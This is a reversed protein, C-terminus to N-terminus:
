REILKIIEEPSKGSKLLNIINQEAELRGKEIGKEIGKEMGEALGQTRGEAMAEEKAKALRRQEQHKEMRKDLIYKERSLKRFYERDSDTIQVLAESAMAIGEKERIIENIKGRKGLDTLYKLYAAWSEYGSMECVPKEIIRKAKDLELIVIRTKGNLSVGHVPDYYEFTHILDEDSFFKGMSFITIQYAEKLDSYNKDKGHIDQRIFLRSEHYELREPVFSGPDLSMEINVLEGSEAVCSIDFRMQRDNINDVPPENATITEVSVTRGILDSILDSLAKKSEVSNRTFVAKFAFDYRLDLLQDAESFQIASM